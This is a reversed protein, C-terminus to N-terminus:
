FGIIPEPPKGTGGLLDEVGGSVEEGRQRVKVLESRILARIQGHNEAECVNSEELLAKGM